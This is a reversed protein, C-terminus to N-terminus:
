SSEIKHELFRLRGELINRAEYIHDGVFLEWGCSCVAYIFVTEGSHLHEKSCPVTCPYQKPLAEIQVSNWVEDPIGYYSMRRERRFSLKHLAASRNRGTM